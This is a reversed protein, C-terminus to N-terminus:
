RRTNRKHRSTVQKVRKKHLIQESKKGQRKRYELERLLMVYNTYHSPDLSGGDLAMRVACDPEREHRCNRFRCKEALSTIDDFAEQVGEGGGALQLERMGPTDIVLGGSPLVILERHSTAHRGKEDTERVELTKMYDYGLLQNILTSKGVGSSGLLACTMGRRLYGRIVDIGEGKTASTVHVPVDGARARVQEVKSAVDPCVDAKNLLLVPRAGGEAALVLYREMRRLNFEADLGNVLFVLDINAALVQDKNRRGAVKRLFCTKRPLLGVITAAQEELRVRVAVWDGVVPLDLPGDAMFQMKGTVEGRLEGEPAYLLYHGKRQIAVRAAACGQEEFPAFLDAFSSNWGLTERDMPVTGRGNM